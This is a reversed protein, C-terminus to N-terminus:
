DYLRDPNLEDPSKWDINYDDKLIQKKIEWYKYCFGFQERDLGEEDIKNNIKQELEYSIKKYEETNEIEDTIEEDEISSEFFEKIKRFYKWM